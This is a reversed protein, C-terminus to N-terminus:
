FANVFQFLTKIKKRRRNAFATGAGAAALMGSYAKSPSESKSSATITLPIHTKPNTAVYIHWGILFATGYAVTRIQSRNEEWPFTEAWLLIFLCFLLTTKFFLNGDFFLIYFMRKLEYFNIEYYRLLSFSIFCILLIFLFHFILTTYTKNNKNEKLLINKILSFIKITVFTILFLFSLFPLHHFEPTVAYLLSFFGIFILFINM